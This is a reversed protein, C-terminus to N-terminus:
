KSEKEEKNGGKRKRTNEKRKKGGKRKRTKKEEGRKGGKNEEKKSEKVKDEIAVTQNLNFTAADYDRTHTNDHALMPDSGGAGILGTGDATNNDEGIIRDSDEPLLAPSDFLCSLDNRPVERHEEEEEEVDDVAAERMMLDDLDDTPDPPLDMPLDDMPLDDMPLPLDEEGPLGGPLGGFSRCPLPQDDVFPQFTSPRSPPPPPAGPTTPPMLLAHSRDDAGM